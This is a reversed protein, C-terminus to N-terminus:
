KISFSLTKILFKFECDIKVLKKSFVIKMVLLSSFVRNLTQLLTGNRRHNTPLASDALSALSATTLAKVLTQVKLDIQLHSAIM